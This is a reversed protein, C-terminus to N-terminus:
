VLDLSPHDYLEWGVVCITGGLVIKVHFATCDHSEIYQKTKVISFPRQLLYFYNKVTRTTKLQVASFCVLIGLVLVSAWGM